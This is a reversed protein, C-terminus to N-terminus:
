YGSTFYIAHFCFIYDFKPHLGNNEREKQLPNSVSTNITFSDILTGDISFVRVISSNFGVVYLYTGDWTIDVAIADGTPFSFSSFVGDVSYQYVNNSWGTM